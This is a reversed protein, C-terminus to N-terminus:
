KQQEAKKANAETQLIAKKVAVLAPKIQNAQKQEQQAKLAEHKADTLEADVAAIRKDIRQALQEASSEAAAEAAQETKVMERDKSVEDLAQREQMWLTHAKARLSASLALNKAQKAVDAQSTLKEAQSHIALALKFAKSGAAQAMARTHEASELEAEVKLKHPSSAAAKTSIPKTVHAAAKPAASSITIHAAAKPAAVSPHEIHAAAKPAAVSPHEIHAATLAAAAAPHIVKGADVPHAPAQELLEIPVSAAFLLTGCCVAAAFVSLAIIRAAAPMIVLPLLRLLCHLLQTALLPRPPQLMQRLM